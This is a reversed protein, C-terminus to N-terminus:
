PNLRTLWSATQDPCSTPVVRNKKAIEYFFLYIAFVGYVESIELFFLFFDFYIIFIIFNKIM